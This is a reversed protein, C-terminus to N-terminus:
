VLVLRVAIRMSNHKIEDHSKKMNQEKVQCNKGTQSRKTSVSNAGTREMTLEAVKYNGCFVPLLIFSTIQKSAHLM